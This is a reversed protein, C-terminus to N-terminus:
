AHGCILKYFLTTMILDNKMGSSKLQTDAEILANFSFQIEKLTYNKVQPLIDSRLFFKYEKMMTSIASQPSQGSTILEKLGLLSIFHRHIMVIMYVPEGGSHMMQQYIHLTQPLNKQGIANCLEFVNYQRSIGVVSEVDEETISERDGVFTCLKDLQSNIERLSTDLRANLLMLAQDNLKKNREALYSIMWEALHQEALPKFEVTTAFDKLNKWLKKRLDPKACIFILSTTTTPKKLYDEFADIQKLQDAERLIVIKRDALMPFSMSAQLIDNVSADKGYFIHLNFDDKPANFTKQIILDSLEDALFTEEGHFFYCPDFEGKKIRKITESYTANAM